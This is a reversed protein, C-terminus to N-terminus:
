FNIRMFNSPEIQYNEEIGCKKINTIQINQVRLLIFICKLLSFLSARIVSISSVEKLDVQNRTPKTFTHHRFSIFDTDNSFTLVRKSDPKPVPFLHGLIARIREGVKSEFGNFILHPFAESVTGRNEIDHRMVAGTLAFHATPGYPLHCIVLGTPEGRNEQLLIIDTFDHSRCAEVLEDTKTNGRNIRQSNPFLLRVEKSFMKLRSSPDRSTTVCVKPDRVGAFAYEDDIHTKQVKTHEDELSIENRLEAEDRRIETPIAKGSMLASRLQKKHEYVASEKGELGKRYLYERRLRVHRRLSM